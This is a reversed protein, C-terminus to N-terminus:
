RDQDPAGAGLAELAARALLRREGVGPLAARRVRPGAWPRHSRSAHDGRTHPARRAMCTSAVQSVRIAALAAPTRLLPGTVVASAPAAASPTSSTLWPALAAGGAPSLMM